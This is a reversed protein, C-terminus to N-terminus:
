GRAAALARGRRFAGHVSSRDRDKAKKNDGGATVALPGATAPRSPAGGAETGRLERSEANVTLEYLIICTCSYRLYAACTNCM